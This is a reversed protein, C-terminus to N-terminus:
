VTRNLILGHLNSTLTDYGVALRGIGHARRQIEHGIRTVLQEHRMFALLLRQGTVAEVHHNTRGLVGLGGRRLRLSETSVLLTIRLRFM